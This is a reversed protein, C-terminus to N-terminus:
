ELTTMSAMFLIRVCIKEEEAPELNVGGFRQLVDALDPITQDFGTGKTWVTNGTKVMGGRTVSTSILM